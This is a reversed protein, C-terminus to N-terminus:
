NIDPWSGSTLSQKEVKEDIEAMKRQVNCMFMEEETERKDIKQAYWKTGKLHKWSVWAQLKSFLYFCRVESLAYIGLDKSGRKGGQKDAKCIRQKM